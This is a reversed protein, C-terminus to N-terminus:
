CAPTYERHLDCIIKPLLPHNLITSGPLAKKHMTCCSKFARKKENQKRRRGGGKEAIITTYIETDIQLNKSNCQACFQSIKLLGCEDQHTYSSCYHNDAALFVREKIQQLEMTLNDLKAVM